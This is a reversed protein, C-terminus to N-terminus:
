FDERQCLQFQSTIDMIVFWPKSKYKLFSKWKLLRSFYAVYRVANYANGSHLVKLLSKGNKSIFPHFLLSFSVELCARSLAHVSRATEPKPKLRAASCVFACTLCFNRDFFNLRKGHAQNRRQARNWQGTRVIPWMPGFFSRFMIATRKWRWEIEFAQGVSIIGGPTM